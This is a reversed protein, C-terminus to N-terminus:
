YATKSKSILLKALDIVNWEATYHLPSRGREDRANVDAGPPMSLWLKDTAFFFLVHWMMELM